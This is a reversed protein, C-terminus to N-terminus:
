TRFPKGAPLHKKGFMENILFAFALYVVLAGNLISEYGGFLALEAGGTLAGFGLPGVLIVTLVLIITLVRPAVASAIVLGLTFM